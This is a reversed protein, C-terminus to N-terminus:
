NIETIIALFAAPKSQKLDTLKKHLIGYIGGLTECDRELESRITHRQNSDRTALLEDRAISINHRLALIRDNDKRIDLIVSRENM